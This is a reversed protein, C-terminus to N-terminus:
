DASMSCEEKWVGEGQRGEGGANESGGGNVGDTGAGIGTTNGKGGTGEDMLVAANRILGPTPRVWKEVVVFRAESAYTQAREDGAFQGQASDNIERNDLGHSLATLTTGSPTGDPAWLATLASLLFFFKAVRRRAGETESSIDAASCDVGFGFVIHPHPFLDLQSRACAFARSSADLRTHGTSCTDVPRSRGLIGGNRSLAKVFHIVLLVLREQGDCLDEGGEQGDEAGWSARADAAMPDHTATAAAGIISWDRIDTEIQPVSTDRTADTHLLLRVSPVAGLAEDEKEDEGTGGAREQWPMFYVCTWRIWGLDRWRGVTDEHALRRHPTSLSPIVPISSTPPCLPRARLVPPSAAGSGQKKPGRGTAFLGPGSASM